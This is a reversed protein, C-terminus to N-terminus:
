TVTFAARMGNEYHKAVNCMLVYSGPKLKFTKSKTKGRGVDAIAGDSKAESTRHNAGVPLKDFATKTKM